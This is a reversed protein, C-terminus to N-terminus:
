LSAHWWNPKRLLMKMRTISFTSNIQLVYIEFHKMEVIKLKALTIFYILKLISLKVIVFM